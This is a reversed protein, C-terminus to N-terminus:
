AAAALCLTLPGGVALIDARAAVIAAPPPAVEAVTAKLVAPHACLQMVCFAITRKSMGRRGRECPRRGQPFRGAVQLPSSLGVVLCLIASSAESSGDDHVRYLDEARRTGNDHSVVRPYSCAM